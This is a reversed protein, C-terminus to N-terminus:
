VGAHPDPDGITDEGGPLLVCASRVKAILEVLDSEPKWLEVGAGALVALLVASTAALEALGFAKMTWFIGGLPIVLVLTRKWCLEFKKVDELETGPFIETVVFTFSGEAMSILIAKVNAQTESYVWLDPRMRMSLRIM